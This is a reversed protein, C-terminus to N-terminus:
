LGLHDASHQVDILHNEDVVSVDDDSIQRKPKIPKIPQSNMKPNLMVQAARALPVGPVGMRTVPMGMFVNEKTNQGTQEGKQDRQRPKIKSPVGKLSVGCNVCSTATAKNDSLCAPCQKEGGLPKPKDLPAIKPIEGIGQAIVKKKVIGAEKWNYPKADSDTPDYGRDKAFKARSAEMRAEMSGFEPLIPRRRQGPLLQINNGEPINHDTEFRKNLYGGVWEGKNNRYPQSYKDMINGRWFTDFDVAHDDFIFNHDRARVWVHWDNGVLGTNSYPLMRKEDPGFNFFESHGTGHFQQAQKKLNYSCATKKVIKASAAQKAFIQIVKDAEKVLNKVSAQTQAPDSTYTGEVQEEGQGRGHIAKFIEAALITKDASDGPEFFRQLADKVLDQADAPSAEVIQNVINPDQSSQELLSQLEQPTDFNLPQQADQEEMMPDSPMQEQPAFGSDMPQVMQSFKSLNFYSSAMAMQPNEYSIENQVDTVENENDRAIEVTQDFADRLQSLFNKKDSDPINGPVIPRIQSLNQNVSKAQEVPLKATAMQNAASPGFTGPM